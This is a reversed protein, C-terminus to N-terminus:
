RSAGFKVKATIGYTRLQPQTTTIRWPFFNEPTSSAPELQAPDDTNGFYVDRFAAIPSDDNFLNKGWLSISWRESEVALRLNVYTHSPITWQNDLGGFYSDQYIIDARADFDWSSTLPRYYRLNANAQWDPQRLVKNGSIDGDPAFSPFEAFSELKGNDM